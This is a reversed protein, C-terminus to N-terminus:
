HFNTQTIVSLGGVGQLIATLLVTLLHGGSVLEAQIKRIKIVHKIIHYYQENRCLCKCFLFNLHLLHCRTTILAFTCSWNNEIGKRVDWNKLVFSFKLRLYYKKIWKLCGISQTRRLHLHEALFNPQGDVVNLIRNPSSSRWASM